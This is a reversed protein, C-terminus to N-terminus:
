QRIPNAKQVQPVHKRIVPVVDPPVFCIIGAHAGSEVKVGIVTGFRSMTVPSGKEIALMRQESFLQKLAQRNRTHLALYVPGADSSATACPITFPLDFSLFGAADLTRDPSDGSKSHVLLFLTALALALLLASVLRVM